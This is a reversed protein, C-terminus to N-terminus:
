LEVITRKDPEGCPSSGPPNIPLNGRQKSDGGSILRNYELEATFGETWNQSNESSRIGSVPDLVTCYNPTCYRLATQCDVGQASGHPGQKQSM